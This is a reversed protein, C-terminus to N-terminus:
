SWPLSSSPLRYRCSSHFDHLPVADRGSQLQHSLLKSHDGPSCTRLTDVHAKCCTGRLLNIRIVHRSIGDQCLTRFPSASLHWGKKKYNFKPFNDTKISKLSSPKHAKEEM